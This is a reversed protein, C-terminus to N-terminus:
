KKTTPFLGLFGKSNHHESSYQVQSNVAHVAPHTLDWGVRAAALILFAFVWFSVNFPNFM